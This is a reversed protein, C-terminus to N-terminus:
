GGVRVRQTRGVLFERLWVVVRSDVGSIALRALLGDHPILRLGQFPRNYDCKYRGGQGFLGSHGPVSHHSEFSYGPRFGHQGEYLWDNNDWVHRLHGTIVHELQKCAFSTLSIPRYNTIEMQFYRPEWLNKRTVMGTRKLYTSIVELSAVRRLEEWIYGTRDALKELVLMDKNPARYIGVIEWTIKPDRDKVEVATM